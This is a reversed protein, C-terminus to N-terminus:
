KECATPEYNGNNKTDAGLPYPQNLPNYLSGPSPSQHRHEPPHPQIKDKQHAPSHGTSQKTTKLKASFFKHESIIKKSKHELFLGYM